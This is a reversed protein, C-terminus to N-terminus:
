GLPSKTAFIAWQDLMTRREDFYTSRLYSSSSASVEADRKQHALAADIVPERFPPKHEQAWTAMSSRFGHLTIPRGKDDIRKFTRLNKHVRNPGIPRDPAGWRGGRFVFGTGCSGVMKIAADSLPVAHEQRMKMRSAPVTWMKKDFDFEEWRAGLAEKLRVGTLILFQTARNATSNVMSLETMLAPLQAHPLSAVSVSKPGKKALHNQLRSWAAPNREIDAASLINEILARTKSGKGHGPGKWIPRLVDAVEEVTIQGVLRKDLAAAHLRLLARNRGLQKPEWEAAHNDLYTEALAGFTKSAAPARRAAVRGNRRDLWAQARAARAQTLTMPALGVASGLWKSGREKGDRFQYEFLASGGRVVLYLSQGLSHRGDGRKLLEAVSVTKTM